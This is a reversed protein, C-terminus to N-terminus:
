AGQVNKYLTRLAPTNKGNQSAELIDCMQGLSAIIARIDRYEGSIEDILALNQM